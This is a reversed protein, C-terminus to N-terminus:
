TARVTPLRHLAAAAVKERGRGDATKRRSEVEGERGRGPRVDKAHNLSLSFCATTTSTANLIFPPVQLLLLLLAVSLSCSM